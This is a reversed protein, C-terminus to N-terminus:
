LVTGLSPQCRQFRSVWPPIRPVHLRCFGLEHRLKGIRSITRADKWGLIGGIDGFPFPLPSVRGLTAGRCPWACEVVKAELMFCHVLYRAWESAPLVWDREQCIRSHFVYNVSVDSM